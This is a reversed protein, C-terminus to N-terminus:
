QAIGTYFLFSKVSPIYKILDGLEIKQKINAKCEFQVIIVGLGRSCLSQVVSIAKSSQLPGFHPLLWGWYQSWQYVKPASLIIPILFMHSSGHQRCASTSHSRKTPYGPAPLLCTYCVEEICCLAGTAAPTPKTPLPHRGWSFERLIEWLPLLVRSQRQFLLLFYFHHFCGGRRWDRGPAVRWGHAIEYMRGIRSPQHWQRHKIAM